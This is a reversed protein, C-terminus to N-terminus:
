VSASPTKRLPRGQIPKCNYLLSFFEVLICDKSCRNHCLSTMIHGPYYCNWLSLWKVHQHHNVSNLPGRTEQNKSWEDLTSNCSYSLLQDCQSKFIPSENIGDPYRSEDIHANFEEVSEHNLIWTWVKSHKLSLLILWFLAIKSMM